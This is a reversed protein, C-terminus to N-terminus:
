LTIKHALPGGNESVIIFVTVLNEYLFVPQLSATFKPLRVITWLVPLRVITWLVPLRVITWLVFLSKETVMHKLILTSCKTWLTQLIQYKFPDFMVKFHPWHPLYQSPQLSFRRVKM